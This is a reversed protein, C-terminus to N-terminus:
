DPWTRASDPVVVSIVGRRPSGPDAPGRQAWEALGQM